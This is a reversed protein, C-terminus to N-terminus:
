TALKLKLKKTIGSENATVSELKRWEISVQHLDWLEIKIFISVNTKSNCHFCYLAMNPLVTLSCVNKEPSLKLVEYKLWSSSSPRLKNLFSQNNYRPNGKILNRDHDWIVIAWLQAKKLCFCSFFRCCEKSEQSFFFNIFFILPFTSWRLWLKRFWNLGLEDDHSM